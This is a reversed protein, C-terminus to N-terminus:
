GGAPAPKAGAPKQDAKDAGEQLVSRLAERLQDALQNGGGVFLRAINGERDIIVTQPIAAAAYKEAVAGDRDLAVTPHLKHRELMPTIQEPEEQLNVAILRVGRDQFERAVQEVQPMAQLCPGCWTAWFDLIVPKGKADALHFKKGGLLELEFDPAAKGVLSSETGPKRGSAPDGSAAAERPELANQLKWQQFTMLAAAQEIGGGILLQDVDNLSVRCPGLVDGKGALSGGALRDALFTLRIGDHCVAQVRIGGETAPPAPAPGAPKGATSSEEPHLWIITALRDRPIQREELRIEIELAKDDLKVVRGRLFDGNRSRVLHTPPNGKQMRPLTMLRDRKAKSIKIATDAAHALEVAQVKDHGVFTSASLSTRFSVGREDIRTIESPIVDGSRLYLSKRRATSLTPQNGGLASIFGTLFGAAGAPQAPPRQTTRPQPRQPPAERYVIKGSGGPRITSPTRSGQPRWVLCNAGADAPSDVLRGPLRVGELELVGLQGGLAEPSEAPGLAVLSRLGTTSLSLPEPIGPVRLSLKAPGVRQPDGSIRTGDQYVVALSRAHPKDAVSLYVAAIQDEAITAAGKSDRISFAKAAPDFREVKGYVISGDARHIRSQGREVQRPPEGNWRSIRLRELRLDGHKNALSLGGLPRPQASAVKLDALPKGEATFVLARGKEQDLYAILHIRGPGQVIEGVSAVDAEQETERQIIVDREWVEFRFARQVTKEDEGVGMALVFDPKNKWSIEFEVTARAPLHLDGRLLAGEQDTWPQGQDEKWAKKGAPEQWGSLGSPGLYVLDASNRWRYIRGIMARDIRARGLRPIDLEAREADLALLTGFAVDGGALEFCYDGAPRPLEAPVPFHIANLAGTTFEFPDVFAAAQWRVLDPRDGEALKGAVSGGNRLHLVAPADAAAAPGGAAAAVAALINLLLLSSRRGKLPRSGPSSALNPRM